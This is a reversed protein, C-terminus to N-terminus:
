WAPDAEENGNVDRVLKRFLESASNDDFTGDSRIQGVLGGKLDYVNGNRIAGIQRGDTTADFVETDDLIRALCTGDKTDYIYGTISM